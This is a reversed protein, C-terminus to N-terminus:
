PKTFQQSSKNQEYILTPSALILFTFIALVWGDPNIM